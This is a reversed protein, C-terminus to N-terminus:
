KKSNNIKYKGHTKKHLWLGSKRNFAKDCVSCKFEKLNLHARKHEELVLQSNFSKGCDNCLLCKREEPDQHTQIHVNLNGKWKFIKACYTCVHKFCPNASHIKLGMETSFVDNCEGCKFGTENGHYRSLHKLLGRGYNFTKGCLECNYINDKTHQTKVHAKLSQKMRFEKECITCKLPKEGTHVREHETLAGKDKLARGCHQCDYKTETTVHKKTHTLILM